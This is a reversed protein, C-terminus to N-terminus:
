FPKTLGMGYIAVQAMNVSGQQLLWQQSEGAELLTTTTVSLISNSLSNAVMKWWPVEKWAKGDLLPWGGVSKLYKKFDSKWDQSNITLCSKTYSRFDLSLILFIYWIKKIFVFCFFCTLRYIDYRINAEWKEESKTSTKKLQKMM